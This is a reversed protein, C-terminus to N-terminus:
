PLFSHPGRPAGGRHWATERAPQLGAPAVVGQQSGSLSNLSTLARGLATSSSLAGPVKSGPM